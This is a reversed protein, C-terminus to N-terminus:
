LIITAFIMNKERLTHKNQEHNRIMYTNCFNYKKAYSTYDFSLWLLIVLNANQMITTAYYNISKFFFFNILLYLM